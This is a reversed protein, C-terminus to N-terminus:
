IRLDPLWYVNVLYEKIIGNDYGSYLSQGDTSIVFSLLAGTHGEIARICQGDFM